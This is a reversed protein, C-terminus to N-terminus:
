VCSQQVGHICIFLPLERPNEQFFACFPVKPWFQIENLICM